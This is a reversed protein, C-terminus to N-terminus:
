RSKMSALRGFNIAYWDIMDANYRRTAFEIWRNWDTNIM